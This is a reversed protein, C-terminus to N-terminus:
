PQVADNRHKATEHDVLRHTQDRIAPYAACYAHEKLWVVKFPYWEASAPGTGGANYLRAQSDTSLAREAQTSARVDMWM